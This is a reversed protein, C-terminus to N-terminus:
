KCICDFFSGILLFSISAVQSEDVHQVFRALVAWDNWPLPDDLDASGIDRNSGLGAVYRVRHSAYM